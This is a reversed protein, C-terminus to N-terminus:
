LRDLLPLSYNLPCAGKERTIMNARAAGTAGNKLRRAEGAATRLLIGLARVEGQLVYWANWEPSGVVDPEGTDYGAYRRLAANCLRVLCGMARYELADGHKQVFFHSERSRPPAASSSALGARLHGVADGGVDDPRLSLLRCVGVIKNAHIAVAEEERRPASRAEAAHATHRPRADPFQPPLRVIWASRDNALRM